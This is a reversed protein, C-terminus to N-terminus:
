KIPKPPEKGKCAGIRGAREKFQEPLRFPVDAVMMFPVPKGNVHVQAVAM